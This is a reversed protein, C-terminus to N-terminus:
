PSVEGIVTTTSTFMSSDITPDLYILVSYENTEGPGIVSGTPFITTYDTAVLNNLSDM